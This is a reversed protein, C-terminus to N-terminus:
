IPQAPSKSAHPSPEKVEELHEKLTTGSWELNTVIDRINTPTIPYGTERLSYLIEHAARINQQDPFVEIRVNISDLRVLDHMFRTCYIREMHLKFTRSYIEDLLFCSHGNKAFTSCVSERDLHFALDIARHSPRVRVSTLHLAYQHYLAAEPPLLHLGIALPAARDRDDSLEDAFRLVSALLQMRVEASRFQELPRLGRGITDSPHGNADKGTHAAAIQNIIRLEVQDDGLVKGLYQLVPPLHQEHGERGYINGVDHLHIALLLIYVEYPDLRDTPDGVMQSAREIVTRIHSPGHATLYGGNVTM